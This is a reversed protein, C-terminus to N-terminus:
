LFGINEYLKNKKEDKIDDLFCINCETHQGNGQGKIKTICLGCCLENHDKCFYKLKQNHNDYKCFGTFINKIDKDLKILHHNLFLGSHSQDCKNCMYIQCEPCFLLAENKEHEKLSCYIKMTEM